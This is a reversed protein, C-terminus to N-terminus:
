SAQPGACALQADRRWKRGWIANVGALAMAAGADILASVRIPLDFLPVARDLVPRRTFPQSAALYLVFLLALAMPEVKRARSARLWVVLWACAVLALAFTFACSVYPAILAPIVSSLGAAVSAVITLRMPGWRLFDPGVALGLLWKLLRRRRRSARVALPAATHGPARRERADVMGLCFALGVALAALFPIAPPRLGTFRWYAFASVAVIWGWLSCLGIRSVKWQMGALLWLIPYALLLSLGARKLLGAGWEPVWLAALVADPADAAAVVVTAAGMQLLM